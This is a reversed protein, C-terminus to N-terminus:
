TFCKLIVGGEATRGWGVVTLNTGVGPLGAIDVTAVRASLSAPSALRLLALDKDPNGRIGDTPNFDAVYDPHMIIEAVGVTQEVGENRSRDHEGLVVSLSAPSQRVVCHGATLVWSRDILSGGCIHRGSVKLEAVWPFEGPRTEVGGVIRKEPAVPTSCAALAVLLIMLLPILKRVMANEKGRLIQATKRKLMEKVKM